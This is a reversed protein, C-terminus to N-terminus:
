PSTSFTPNTDSFCDREISNFFNTINEFVNEDVFSSFDGLDEAFRALELEVSYDTAESFMPLATPPLTFSTAGKPLFIFWSMSDLGLGTDFRSDIFVLNLGNALGGTPETFDVTLMEAELRTLVAGDAPANLTPPDEFNITIATPLSSIFVECESDIRLGGPFSSTHVSFLLRLGALNADTPDPIHVTAPLRNETGISFSHESLPSASPNDIFLNVFGGDPLENNYTMTVTQDFDIRGVNYNFDQTATDGPSAAEVDFALIASVTRAPGGGGSDGRLHVFSVNLKEGSPIALTYTGDPAVQTGTQFRSDQGQDKVQVDFTENAGLAPLNSVTGSLTADLTPQAGDGEVLIPVGITGSAPTIDFLTTAFRGSEGDLTLDIQATVTFPGDVNEFSVEGQSNAVGLIGAASGTDSGLLLVKAGSAPTITPAFPGAEGYEVRVTVTGSGTGAIKQINITTIENAAITFSFTTPAPDGAFQYSATYNGPVLGTLFFTGTGGAIVTTTTPGSIDVMAGPVGAGSDTVLGTLSGTNPITVPLDGLATTGGTVVTGAAVGVTSSVAGLAVPTLIEVTVGIPTCTPLDAVVYAPVSPISFNGNEDATGFQGTSVSVHAGPVGAGTQDVVRGSVTTACPLNVAIVGAHWGGETIVGSADIAFVGGGLDVVVGANGTEDTRNVWEGVDHDFSWIDVPTGVPFDRDNPLIVDLGQGLGTDFSANAPQITVYASADVPAGPPSLPMPVDAAPVPTVNVNVNGTAPAGGITIITADPVTVQIDLSPATVVVEGVTAGSGGPDTMVTGNASAPNSLDPLTIPQLQTRGTAAVDVTLHLIPFTSGPVSATTGDIEVDIPGAPPDLIIFNGSPDTTATTPNGVTVTVGALGTGGFQLVTGSLSRQNTQASEIPAPVALPLGGGGGCGAFVAVILLVIPVLRRRDNSRMGDARKTLTRAM